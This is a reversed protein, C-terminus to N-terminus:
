FEATLRAQALTTSAQTVRQSTRTNCGRKKFGFTVVKKKKRRLRRQHNRPRRFGKSVVFLPHYYVVLVYADRWRYYVSTVIISLWVDRSWWCKAVTDGSSKHVFKEVSPLIRGSTPPYGRPLAYSVLISHSTKQPPPVFRLSAPSFRLPDHCCPWEAM